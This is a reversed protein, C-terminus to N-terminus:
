EYLEKMESKEEPSMDALTVLLFVLWIFFEDKINM